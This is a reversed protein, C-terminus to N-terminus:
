ATVEFLFMIPVLLFDANDSDARCCMILIDPSPKMVFEGLAQKRIFTKRM